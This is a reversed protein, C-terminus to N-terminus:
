KESKPKDLIDVICYVLNKLLKVSTNTVVATYKFWSTWFSGEKNWPVIRHDNSISKM